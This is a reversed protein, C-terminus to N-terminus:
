RTKGTPIRRKGMIEPCWRNVVLTIPVCLLCAGVVLLAGGGLQMQWSLRGNLNMVAGLWQECLVLAFNNFSYYILSNAGVFDLIPVLVPVRFREIMMLLAVSFMIGAIADAMYFPYWGYQNLYIDTQEGAVHRNLWAFLETAAGWVVIMPASFLWGPMSDWQQRMIKGLVLFFFGSCATELAWPATHGIFESYGYGVLSAIIGLVFQWQIKSTIFRQVVYMAIEIAFLSTFFWPIIGLDGGRIELVVGLLYHLVPVNFPQGVIIGNLWELAIVIVNFVLGPVLLTRVRRVVFSRLTPYHRTSFVFGSLFFFLPMHFAYFFDRFPEPCLTYGWFVLVMAFGKGYDVWAIRKDNRASERQAFAGSSHRADIQTESLVEHKNWREYDATM